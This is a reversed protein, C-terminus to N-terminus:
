EGRRRSRLRPCMMTEFHFIDLIVVDFLVLFLFLFLFGIGQSGIIIPIAVGLILPVHRHRRCWGGPASSTQLSM